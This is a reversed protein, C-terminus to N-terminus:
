RNERDLPVRDLIATGAPMWRHNEPANFEVPFDACLRTGRDWTWEACDQGALFNVRSARGLHLDAYCCTVVSLVFLLVVAAREVLDSNVRMARLSIGLCVSVQPLSPFM